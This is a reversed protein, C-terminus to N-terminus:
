KKKQREKVIKTAIKKAEKEEGFVQLSKQSRQMLKNITEKASFENLGM